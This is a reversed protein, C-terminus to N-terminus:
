FFHSVQGTLLAWPWMKVTQGVPNSGKSTERFEWGRGQRRVAPWPPSCVRHRRPGESDGALQGLPGQGADGHVQGLCEGALGLGAGGCCPQLSWAWPVHQVWTPGGWAGLGAGGGWVLFLWRQGPFAPAAPPKKLKQVKQRPALTSAKQLHSASSPMSTGLSACSGQWRVQARIKDRLKELRPSSERHQRPSGLVQPPRETWPTRPPACTEHGGSSGSLRGSSVSSDGDKAEEGATWWPYSSAKGLTGPRECHDSWAMFPASRPAGPQECPRPRRLAATLGKKAASSQLGDARPLFASMASHRAAHGGDLLGAAGVNRGPSGRVSFPTPAPFVGRHM